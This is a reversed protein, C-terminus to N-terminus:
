QKIHNIVKDILQGVQDYMKRNKNAKFGYKSKLGNLDNILDKVKASDGKNLETQIREQEDSKAKEDAAKKNDLEKQVRERELREAKLKAEQEDRQKKEKAAREAEIKARKNAEIKAVREREVRDKEDQKAKLEADKRLQENEKRIREQESKEAEIKAQREQEAKKEAALIDIYNQKKTSLYAEWVDEEMDSLFLESANEVYQSILEVRKSQIATIREKELNEFHKEAEMLKSEMRENEAVEKNKISDVFRGGNLFYAKNAKHWKEIGKTRNDRIQIRLEKFTPINEATVDLLLVDKYAEILVERETLITNLGSSIETAQKEELGYQKPDILEVENKM